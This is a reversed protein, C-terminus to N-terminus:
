DTQACSFKVILKRKKILNQEASLPLYKKESALFGVKGGIIYSKYGESSTYVAYSGLASKCGCEAIPKHVELDFSFIPVAGDTSIATNGFSACESLQNDIEINELNINDVNSAMACSSLLFVVIFRFKQAAM